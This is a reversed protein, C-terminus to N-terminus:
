LCVCLQTHTDLMVLTNSLLEGVKFFWLMPDTVGFFEKGIGQPSTYQSIFDYGILFFGFASAFADQHKQSSFYVLM